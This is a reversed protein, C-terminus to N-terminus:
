TQSALGPGGVKSPEAEKIKTNGGPGKKTKELKLLPESPMSDGAAPNTQALYRRWFERLKLHAAQAPHLYKDDRPVVESNAFDLFERVFEDDDEKEPYLLDVDRSTFERDGDRFTEVVSSLLCKRGNNILSRDVENSALEVRNKLKKYHRIINRVRSSNHSLAAQQQGGSRSDASAEDESDSGTGIIELDPDHEQLVKPSRRASLFVSLPQSRTPSM